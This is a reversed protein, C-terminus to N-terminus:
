KGGFEAYLPDLRGPAQWQATNVNWGLDDTKVKALIENKPTGAKILDSFRQALTDVKKKYADFDARTMTTMNPASHGPVVTDFKLKAIQALVKTAGLLSGGNPYDFNPQVGVIEDGGCLVKLDPFYVVSDGGTHMPGFHYVDAKAGGLKIETKTAYTNSPEAPKGAASTYTAVEKKEGENATVRAGAAIFKGTNGSHDQHVHTIIVEKVPEPSVTKIQAVLDNYFQDGLNKTDVLIIGAKTVRVTSNGGAGTVVYLNPKIQMIMQPAAAPAGGRGGAPAQGFAATALLAIWLGSRLM